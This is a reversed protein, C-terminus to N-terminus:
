KTIAALYSDITVSDDSKVTMGLPGDGVRTVCKAPEGSEKFEALAPTRKLFVWIRGDDIITEFGDASTIYDIITERDSAKVTMGDPGVGVQTVHKDSAGEALFARWNESDARFVWLRGDIVQTEFGTKRTLYDDITERDSSKITVGTPGAGIRSIHKEPVEGKLLSRSEPSGDKFVWLRGDIMKTAFGDRSSMYDYIVDRSPAKITMGGPGGGPMTVHKEYSGSEKFESLAESGISFVWLRGERVTTYFAPKDFPNRDVSTKVVDGSPLYHVWHWTANNRLVYVTIGSLSGERKHECVIASGPLFSKVNMRARSNLYVTSEGVVGPGSDIPFKGEYRSWDRYNVDQVFEWLKATYKEHANSREELAYLKSGCLCFLVTMCGIIRQSQGNFKM